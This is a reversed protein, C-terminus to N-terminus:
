ITGVHDLQSCGDSRTKDFACHPVIGGPGWSELPRRDKRHSLQASKCIIQPPIQAVACVLRCLRRFADIQQPSPILRVRPKSLFGITERPLSRGSGEWPEGTPRDWDIGVTLDNNGEAHSTRWRVDVCQLISGDRRVVFHTGFGKKELVDETRNSGDHSVIWRPYGSRPRHPWRASAPRCFQVAGPLEYWRGWLVIGGTQPAPTPPGTVSAWVKVGYTWAAEGTELQSKLSM